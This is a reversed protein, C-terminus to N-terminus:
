GDHNHVPLLFTIVHLMDNPVPYNNERLSERYRSFGTKPKGLSSLSWLKHAVAPFLAIGVATQSNVGLIFPFHKGFDVRSM